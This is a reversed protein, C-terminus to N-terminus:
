LRKLVIDALARSKKLKTALDDKGGVSIRITTDAKLVYLVGGIKTATWFADDGVGDVKEPKTKKEGEEREGKEDNHERHFTEEWWERTANGGGKRMVTLVASNAATPLAFYCQSMAMPEAGQSSPKTEQVPEGLVSKIEDSTLLTCADPMPRAPEVAAATASEAPKTATVEPKSKKCGVIVIVFSCVLALRRM